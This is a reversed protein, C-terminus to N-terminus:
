VRPGTPPGWSHEEQEEEERVQGKRRDRGLDWIPLVKTEVQDDEEQELDIKLSLFRLLDKLAVIGVLHQQDDVVLLRSNGTRSMIGLAKIPDEDPSISNVGACACMIDGVTKLGWDDRPVEKIEHTSVCGLLRGEEVVPYTKYHFKYVYQEVLDQVSLNLPVTVPDTRMFRRLTEGELARRILVQRYSMQAAARMFMGIMLWWIGGILNGTLFSLVGLVILGIGFASGFGSAIGTAWRLNKRWAWLASRLVRGGDLPFAPLMNFIALIINLWALYGVVVLAPVPGAATLMGIEYIAFFLASLVVSTAPGAIAMLFESGASPPEDEMEAVGGFIFLTIDKIPIGFKRAVIAHGMEHLIICAFLGMAGGVGMWWYTASSFGPYQRPFIGAALSWTVLLALLIWSLDITISFGFLNFLRIKRTLM